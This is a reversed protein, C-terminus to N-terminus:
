TGHVRRMEEAWEGTTVGAKAAAISPAMINQGKRAEESLAALADAM